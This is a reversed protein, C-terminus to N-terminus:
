TICKLCVVALAILISFAIGVSMFEAFIFQKNDEKDQEFPSIPSISKKM